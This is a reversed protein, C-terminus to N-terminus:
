GVSHSLHLLPPRKKIHGAECPTARHMPGAATSDALAMARIEFVLRL